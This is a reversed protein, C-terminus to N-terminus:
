GEQAKRMQMASVVIHPGMWTVPSGDLGVCEYAGLAMREPDLGLRAALQVLGAVEVPRRMAEPLANFAEALDFRSMGMPARECIAALLESTLPGGLRRLEEISLAQPIESDKALDLLAPPPADQQVQYLRTQLSQM